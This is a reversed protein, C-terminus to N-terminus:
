TTTPATESESEPPPAPRAPPPTYASEPADTREDAISRWAGLTLLATALLGLYAVPKVDVLHNPAGAGLGPQTVIRLALVLTTLIGLFSTVVAAAVPLAVREARVTLVALTLGLVILVVLLAVMFWGLSSWGTTNDAAIGQFGAGIGIIPAEFWDLFLLVFLAAAAAGALIEGSRLRALSM